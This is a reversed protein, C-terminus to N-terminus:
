VMATLESVKDVLYTKAEKKFVGNEKAFEPNIKICLKATLMAWESAGEKDLREIVAWINNYYKQECNSVLISVLASQLDLDTPIEFENNMINELPPLKDIMSMFSFFEFGAGVGIAGSVLAKAVDSNIDKEKEHILMLMRVVVEWSRFSPWGHRDEFTANPDFNYALEPRFNLFSIVSSIAKRGSDSDRYKNILWDFWCESDPTVEFHVLRNDLSQLLANAGSNDSVRNSCCVIFTDPHAVWGNDLSRDLIIRQATVMTSEHANSIEEFCMVSAEYPLFDPSIFKCVDMKESHEMGDKDVVTIDAQAISPMGKLDVPDYLPLRIDIFPLGKSKAFDRVLSSKAVGPPGWLMPSQPTGDLGRAEYCFDLVEMVDGMQVENHIEIKMNSM